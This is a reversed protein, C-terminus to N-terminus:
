NRKMPLKKTMLEEHMKHQYAEANAGLWERKLADLDEDRTSFRFFREVVDASPDFSARCLLM